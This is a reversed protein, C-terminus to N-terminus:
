TALCIWVVEFVTKLIFCEFLHDLRFYIHVCKVTYGGYIAKERKDFWFVALLQCKGLNHQGQHRSKKVAHM